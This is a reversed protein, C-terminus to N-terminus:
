GPMTNLYEEREKEIESKNLPRFRVGIRIADEVM